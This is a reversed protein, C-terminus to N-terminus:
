IVFPMKKGLSKDFYREVYSFLLILVINAVFFKLVQAKKKKKFFRPILPYHWFVTKSGVFIFFFLFNMNTMCLNKLIIFYLNSYFKMIKLGIFCFNSGASHKKGGSKRNQSIRTKFFLVEFFQFCILLINKM